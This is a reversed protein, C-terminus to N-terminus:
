EGAADTPGADSTGDPAADSADLIGADLACSVRWMGLVCAAGPTGNACAGAFAALDFLPCSLGEAACGAPAGQVWIVGGKAEGERVEGCTRPPSSSADSHFEPPHAEDSGCATCVFLALLCHFARM